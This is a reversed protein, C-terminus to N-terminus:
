CAENRQLGSVTGFLQLPSNINITDLLNCEDRRHREDRAKSLHRPLGRRRFPRRHQTDHTLPPFCLFLGPSGGVEFVRPYGLELHTRAPGARTIGLQQKTHTHTPTNPHKTLFHFLKNHAPIDIAYIYPTFWEKPIILASSWAQM